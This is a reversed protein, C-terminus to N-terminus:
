VQHASTLLSRRPAPPKHDDCESSPMCSPLPLGPVQQSPHRMPSTHALPLKCQRVQTTGRM